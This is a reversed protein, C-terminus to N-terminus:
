KAYCRWASINHLVMAVLAYDLKGPHAKAYEIIQKINNPPFNPNAVLVFTIGAIQSIGTFSTLPDYDVKKYLNPVM